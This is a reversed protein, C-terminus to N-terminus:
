FYHIILKSLNNSSSITNLTFVKFKYIGSITPCTFLVKKNRLVKLKGVHEQGLIISPMVASNLFPSTDRTVTGFPIPFVVSILM